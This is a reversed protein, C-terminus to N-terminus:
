ASALSINPHAELTALIEADAMARAYANAHLTITIASTAAENNIAFLISANSFNKSSSMSWNTKLGKLRMEEIWYFCHNSIAEIPANIEGLLKKLYYCTNFLNSWVPKAEYNIGGVRMDFTEFLGLYCLSSLLGRSDSTPNSINCAFPLNTRIPAKYYCSSVRIKQWHVFIARMQDNTIDGLENLWWYGNKWVITDGYMGTREIDAGTDNYEAGATVYLYHMPDGSPTTMGSGGGGGIEPEEVSEDTDEAGVNRKGVEASLETLETETAYAGKPQYDRMAQTETVYESDNELESIKTPIESKEAKKGLDAKIGSDDYNQLGDLKAKDEDTYDNSSLGKGEEKDVKNELEKWLATDDYDGGGAVYELTSTLEITETKIGDDDSGGVQCSCPVLNVLNCADTTHMDDMGENLVLTLSHKGLNKQDKGKFTWRIVNGEIMFDNVKTKGFSNKLYLTCNYRELNLPQEEAQLISWIVNIDNGIREDKMDM